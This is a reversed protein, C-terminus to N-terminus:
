FSGLSFFKFDLIIEISVLSSSVKHIPTGWYDTTFLQALNTFPTPQQVVHNHLIAPIDDFVFENHICPLYILLCAAALLAYCTTTRSPMCLCSSCTNTFKFKLQKFENLHVDVTPSLVNLKCNTANREASSNTPKLTEGRQKSRSNTRRRNASNKACAKPCGKPGTAQQAGSGDSQKPRNCHKTEGINGRFKCSKKVQLHGKTPNTQPNMQPNTQPNTQLNTQINTQPNTQSNVSRHEIKEFRGSRTSNSNPPM